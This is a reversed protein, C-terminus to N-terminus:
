TSSPPLKLNGQRVNTVIHRANSNENDVVDVDDNVEDENDTEANSSDDGDDDDDEQYSMTSERVKRFKVAIYMRSIEWEENSITGSRNLVKMQYM